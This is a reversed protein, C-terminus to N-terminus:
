VVSKRDKYGCEECYQLVKKRTDQSIRGKGSIARSITTKSYGLNQAIKDITIKRHANNNYSEMFGGQDQLQAIPQEIILTYRMRMKVDIRM